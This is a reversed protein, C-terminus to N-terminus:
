EATTKVITNLNSQLIALVFFIQKKKYIYETSTLNLQEVNHLSIIVSTRWWLTKTYWEINHWM